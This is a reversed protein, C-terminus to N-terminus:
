NVESSKTMHNVFDNRLAVNRLYKALRKLVAVQDVQADGQELDATVERVVGNWECSMPLFLERRVDGIFRLM